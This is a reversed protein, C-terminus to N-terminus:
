RRDTVFRAVTVSGIFGVLSIAVLLALYDLNRYVIMDVALAGGVIALLVDSALVRDLISPGRAIRYIAGAGAVALMLSVVVVAVNMM